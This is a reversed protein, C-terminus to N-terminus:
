RDMDNSKSGYFDIKIILFTEYNFYLSVIM